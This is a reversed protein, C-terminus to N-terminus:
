PTDSTAPIRVVRLPHLDDFSRPDQLGSQQDGGVAVWFRDISSREFGDIEFMPHWLRPLRLLAFLGVFAAISAALVLGEFTPIFFAPVAHAPRGGINLPYSVANAYWQVAYGALAGCVGAVFVTRPLPSRPVALIEDIAPVPYPSFVEIVGAGQQKLARVAAVFTEEDGLEVAYAGRPWDGDRM